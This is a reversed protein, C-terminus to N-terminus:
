NIDSIAGFKLLIVERVSTLIANAAEAASLAQNMLFERLDLNTAFCNM